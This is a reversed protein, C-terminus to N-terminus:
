YKNVLGRRHCTLYLIGALVFINSLMHRGFGKWALSFVFLMEEQTSWFLLFLIYRLIHEGFWKFALSPQVHIEVFTSCVIGM